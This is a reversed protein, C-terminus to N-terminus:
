DAAISEFLETRVILVFVVCCVSVSYFFCSLESTLITKNAYHGLSVYGGAENKNEPTGTSLAM